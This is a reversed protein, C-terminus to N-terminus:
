RGTWVKIISRPIRSTRCDQEYEDYTYGWRCYQQINGLLSMTSKLSSCESFFLVGFIRELACRDRRCSVSTVLNSINYKYELNQLFSHNIFSQVGFCGYWKNKNGGVNNIVMSSNILLNKIQTKNNLSNIIRLMNDLNEKDPNFYWLPIVKHQGVISEFNIRRHFFVSDHMIVANDFWKNKLYYYYALLEGRGHFESQVYEVNKYDSFAKLLSQNSNDDIIVIKRDPYFRRICQIANNWYKNTTESNVHRTIIFGYSDM